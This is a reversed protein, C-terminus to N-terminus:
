EIRGIKDGLRIREGCGDLGSLQVCLAHTPQSILNAAEPDVGADQRALRTRVGVLDLPTVPDPGLFPRLIGVAVHM